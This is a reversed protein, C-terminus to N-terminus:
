EINYNNLSYYTQPSLLSTTVINQILSNIEVIDVREERVIFDFNINKHCIIFSSFNLLNQTKRLLPVTQNERKKKEKKKFSSM